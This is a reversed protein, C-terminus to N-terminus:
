FSHAIHRSSGLYLFQCEARKRFHKKILNTCENKYGVVDKAKLVFKTEHTVKDCVVCGGEYLICVVESNTLIASLHLFQLLAFYRKQGKGKWKLLTNFVAAGVEMNDEVKDAVINKTKRVTKHCFSNVLAMKELDIPDLLSFIDITLHQYTLNNFLSVM